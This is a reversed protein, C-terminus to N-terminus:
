ALAPQVGSFPDDVSRKVNGYNGTVVAAQNQLSQSPAGDKNVDFFDGHSAVDGDMITAGFGTDTPVQSHGGLGVFKGGWRVGIDSGSGGEAFFHDKTYGLQGVNDAQMGPSGLAIVDDAPFDHSRKIADGILTTGYSHGIITTHATDGGTAQVHAERSGDMFSHLVPAGNHAYSDQTAQPLVNDPPDYNFWYITSVKADPDEKTCAHWLNVSADIKSGSGGIETSTGPVIVAVHDATDPNGNALIVDGNGQGVPDFGLLYAEPLGETGTQSFRDEIAEMGHIQAELSMYRRGYKKYWAEWEPSAKGSLIEADTPKPTPEPPLADLEEQCKGLSEVLVEGNAEDRADAPLGDLAGVVSPSMSLYEAQEEPSLSKWWKANQQVTGNQPPPPIHALLSSTDSTLETRDQGVNNWDAVSVTLDDDAMLMRLQPAWKEDVNTAHVVATQIRDALAQAHAGIPGLTDIMKGEPLSPVTTSVRVAGRVTGGPHEGGDGDVSAPYTVSGDAGVTFACAQAEALADM